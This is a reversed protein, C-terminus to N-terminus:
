GSGPFGKDIFLGEEAILENYLVSALYSKQSKIPKDSKRYVPVSLAAIIKESDINHLVSRVKSQPYIAKAVRLQESYFMQEIVAKILKIQEKSLYESDFDCLNFIDQLQREENLRDIKEAELEAKSNSKSDQQNISQINLKNLINIDKTNLQMPNELTPNDSTPFDLWPSINPETEVMTPNELWPSLQQTDVNKEESSLLKENENPVQEPHKAMVNKQLNNDPLDEAKGDTEHQPEEHIIYEVGSFKGNTDQVKKRSIYGCKELEWIATRIADISEKNIKALGKLTYDWNDPLSLMQSLLGKAKLSLASDKLHYNSMVTYNNQKPIRFVTAM